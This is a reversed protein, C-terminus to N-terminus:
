DCCLTVACLANEDSTTGPLGHESLTPLPEGDLSPSDIAIHSSSTGPFNKIDTPTSGSTNRNQLCWPGTCVMAGHSAPKQAHAPNAFAIQRHEHIVKGNNLSPWNVPHSQMILTLSRTMPLYGQQMAARGYSDAVPYLQKILNSVGPVVPKHPYSLTLHLTNAQFITQRSVPGKGDVWGKRRYRLDQEQQYDNNISALGQMSIEAQAHDIYAAASPSHIIIRWPSDQTDQHRQELARALQQRAQDPHQGAFLPLLAQEFAHEIVEPKAHAVSAARAAELLALSVTQRVSFWHAIEIGGLGVLLLPIAVLAFEIAASGSQTLAQAHKFAMRARALLPSVTPINLQSTIPM